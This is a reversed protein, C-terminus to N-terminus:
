KLQLVDSCVACFSVDTESDLTLGGGCQMCQLSVRPEILDSVLFKAEVLHSLARNMPRSAPKKAGELHLTDLAVGLLRNVFQLLDVNFKSM